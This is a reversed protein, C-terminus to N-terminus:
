PFVALPTGKPLDQIDLVKRLPCRFWWGVKRLPCRCHYPPEPARKPLDQTDLVKTLSCRWRHERLFTQLLKYKPKQLQVLDQPGRLFTRSIWSRRLPAGGATNIHKYINKFPKIHKQISEYAKM